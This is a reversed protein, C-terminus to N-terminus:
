TACRDITETTYRTVSRLVTFPGTRCGSATETSVLEEWEETLQQWPCRFPALCGHKIYNTRKSPPRRKFKELLEAEQESQFRQGAPCDPYDHPFHPQGMFQSHKVSM